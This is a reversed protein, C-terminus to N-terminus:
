AVGRRAALRAKAEAYRQRRAERKAKEEKSAFAWKVNLKVRITLRKIEGWVKAHLPPNACRHCQFFVPTAWGMADAAHFMTGLAKKGCSDCTSTTEYNEDSVDNYRPDNNM